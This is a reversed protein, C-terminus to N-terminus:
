NNLKLDHLTKYGLKEFYDNFDKSYPTPAKYPNETFESALMALQKLPIKLNGVQVFYSRSQSRPYQDNLWNLDKQKILKIAKEIHVKKIRWENDSDYPLIQYDSDQPLPVMTEVHVFLRTDETLYPSVKVCRIDCNKKENLWLQVINSYIVHSHKFLLRM